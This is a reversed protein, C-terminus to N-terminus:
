GESFSMWDKEVFGHVQKKLTPSSVKKRRYGLREMIDGLRMEDTRTIQELRRGVAETLLIKSTIPEGDACLVRLGTATPVIAARASLWREIADAWADGMQYDQQIERLESWRERPLWWEAGANLRHVAEAWLQDRAAVVLERRIPSARGVEVPWFRRAGTPDRLFEPRNTTGVFVCRRAWTVPVRGYLPIFRDVPATLFTKAENQDVRSGLFASMEGLEHVWASALQQYCRPVSGIDIRSESWFEGVLERLTSTKGEGQEGLLVLVADAQCGPRLARAVAQVLWAQGIWRLIPTDAAGMGWQLWTDIRETGDWRLGRLYGVLPDYGHDDSITACIPRLSEASIEVRYVRSLWEAIRQEDLDTWLRGGIMRQKRFADFWLRARWRSDTRLVETAMTRASAGRREMRRLARRVEPEPGDTNPIEPVVRAVPRLPEEDIESGADGSDEGDEFSPRARRLRELREFDMQSAAQQVELAWRWLGRQGSLRKLERLWAPAALPSPCANPLECILSGIQAPAESDRSAEMATLIEIERGEEHLSQLIRYVERHQEFHLHALKLDPMWKGTLLIAGLIGREMDMNAPAAEPIRPRM